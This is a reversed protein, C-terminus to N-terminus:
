RLHFIVGGRFLLFPTRVLREYEKKQHITEEKKCFPLSFIQYLTFCSFSTMEDQTTAFFLDRTAHSLVFLAGDKGM